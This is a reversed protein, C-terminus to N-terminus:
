GPGASDARRRPAPQGSRAGQPTHVVLLKGQRVSLRAEPSTLVNSVGRAPGLYLTEDLLPYQLGKTMIGDVRDGIPILSVTDGVRGRIRHEGRVLYIYSRGDFITVPTSGCVPSALLMVNALAHDIRGGLAGLITIRKPNMEMARHLALETDTEDKAPPYRLLLCRKERVAELVAPSVSDMDGILIDPVRDHASLWNAGGDAAIVLDASDLVAQLAVSATLEGHAVIVIHQKNAISTLSRSM